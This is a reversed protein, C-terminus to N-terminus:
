MSLENLVVLENVHFAICMVEIVLKWLNTYLASTNLNSKYIQSHTFLTFWHLM